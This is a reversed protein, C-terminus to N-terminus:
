KAEGARKGQRKITAQETEKLKVVLDPRYTTFVHFLADSDTVPDGSEAQVEGAYMRLIRVVDEKVRIMKTGQETM